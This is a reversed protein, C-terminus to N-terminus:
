FCGWLDWLNRSEVVGLDGLFYSLPFKHPNDIRRLQASAADVLQPTKWPLLGSVYTGESLNPYNSRNPPPHVCPQWM